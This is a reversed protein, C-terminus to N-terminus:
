RSVRLHLRQDEGAALPRPQPRQGRRDRLRDHREDVAREDGEHELPQAAVAHVVHDHGAAEEGAADAVHEAVAARVAHPQAVDLLGLREARAPRQLEGLVQEVLAEQHEVAVDEGVEVDVACIARCSARPARPVSASVGTSSGLAYPSTRVSSSPSTVPKTSFGAGSCISVRLMEAPM